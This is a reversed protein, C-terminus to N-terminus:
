QSEGDLRLNDILRVSGAKVAILAQARALEGTPMHETWAQPDRVEAYEVEFGAGVLVERMGRELETGRRVGRERWAARAAQLARFITPARERWTPELLTNRSSMALGDRERETPCVVIRPRGRREALALVVRTQQFDKEGFYAGEPEVVECLSKILDVQPKVSEAKFGPAKSLLTEVWLMVWPTTKLKQGPKGLM